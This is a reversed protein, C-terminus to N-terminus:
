TYIRRGVIFTSKRNRITILIILIATRKTHNIQSRLDVKDYLYVEFLLADRSM